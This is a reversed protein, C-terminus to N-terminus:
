EECGVEWEEKELPTFIWEYTLEATRSGLVAGAISGVLGGGVGGIFGFFPVTVLEEPTAVQPGTQGGVLAISMGIKAGASAGIKGGVLAGSWGGVQRVTEKVRNDAKYIDIASMGTGVLFCIQGGYKFVTITRGLSRIQPTSQHNLSRSYDVKAIGSGGDINIHWEAPNSSGIPIEHYDVRLAKGPNGAKYLFLSTTSGSKPIRMGEKTTMTLYYQEGNLQVATKGNLTITTGAWGAGLGEVIVSADAEGIPDFGNLLNNLCIVYLNNGGNEHIPDRTIWRALPPSYYRFGYYSLETADDYHKSSFRFPFADSQSGTQIITNGYPDYEYHAVVAGNTDVLDTINGNADCFPFANTASFSSQLLGGVGGAGQLTQSLDLGWLYSAAVPGSGGTLFLNTQPIYPHPTRPTLAPKREQLLNWGDYLYARGQVYHWTTDGLYDSWVFERRAIRRSQNDYMYQVLASGLNTTAPRAEILRNEADWIYIWDGNRTMNGDPDYALAPTDPAIATYQNLANATYLNTLGNEVTQQRNGIPDYAYSYTNTGMTADILESRVNYSFTNTTLASDTTDLRQTRRSIADYEYAFTSVVNTGFTNSVLTKNDRLPDYEYAVTPGSPSSYGALLDTGPLYAYTFVNTTADMAAIVSSFRGTPDYAYMVDYGEGLSIGAERGFPDYSRALTTGDLLHEALLSTASYENTRTGLVDTITLPRGLRDYTYAVDPTSDSYDIAVLQGLPDYAYDTAVGRAWLRRTLNGRADYSYAPGLGDAYLKNTLLGTAEDYNWRTVDPAANEDRWTQMAVMRGFADYEYGVPYTAGWTNTVRGQLDYATHVVNTLADTVTTRLGTEPDYAFTTRNGALDEQWAPRGAADYGLLIGSAHADGGTRTLTRRGLADYANTTLVGTSSLSTQLLGAVTTDTATVASRPSATTEIRTQTARDRYTRNTTAVGFADISITEAALVGLPGTTGLGTLRVRRVSNTFPTASDEYPYILTERVQWLDAGDSAFREPADTVRDASALGITGDGDADLATRFPRSLADHAHLTRLLNTGALTEVASLRGAADYFRTETRTGGGFAPASSRFPRSLFDTEDLRWAPSDAAATRTRTWRVGNTSVGYEHFVPVQATGTVAATQGDLHRTEVRTAGGPLTTTVTRGGDAYARATTLGAEDTTSLLRGAFDYASSTALSLGDASTTEAIARDAADYVTAHTVGNEVRAVVRRLADRVYVTELGDADTRSVLGCCDWVQQVTDGGSSARLTERGWEDRECVTWAAPLYNTGDFVETWAAAVRDFPDRIETERTTLWALGDPADATGHIARVRRWAGSGPVFVGPAPAPAYTGWEYTWTTLRGDPLLERWLERSSAAGAARPYYDRVTRLNGPAGYPADPAAAREEVVTRGGLANAPYAYYALSVPVGAVVEEVRRPKCTDEPLNADDPAVAAYSTRVERVDTESSLWPSIENTVRGAADYQWRTWGGDPRFEATRLGYGPADPDTQYTYTTRLAAGDPDAVKEVLAEGFAFTQWTLQEASAVAGGGPAAVTRTETRLAGNQASVRTEERLGCETLAWAGTAENRSYTWHNTQGGVAKSIDLAVGGSGDPATAFHWEAIAGGGASAPREFRVGFGGPMDPSVTAVCQPAEVRDIAGELRRVRVEGSATSLRLASASLGTATLEDAELWLEGASHGGATRGLGLALRVSGLEPTGSGPEGDCSSCGCGVAVTLLASSGNPAEARITVWGRGSDGEVQLVGDAFDVRVPEDDRASVTDELGWAIEVGEPPEPAVAYTASEGPLVSRAGDVALLSFLVENTAAGNTVTYPSVAWFRASIDPGEYPPNTVAGNSADSVRVVYTREEREAAPAITLHGNCVNVETETLRLTTQPTLGDVEVSFAERVPGGESIKGEVGLGGPVTVVFAVTGDAGISDGMAWGEFPPVVTVTLGDGLQTEAFPRGTAPDIEAGDPVGDGDSDPKAPDLGHALEFDDELGDGDSDASCADWGAAYEAEDPLGDDDTDTMDAAHWPSEPAASFTWDNRSDADGGLSRRVLQWGPGAWLDTATSNWGDTPLGQENFPEHAGYMLVDVPGNTTGSPGVLRVGATPVSAYSMPLGLSATFDANTVGEGGVLLFHGPRLVTDAPFVAKTEYAAGAVELAFGDLRVAFRGSNHLQVYQNSAAANYRVAHILVGKALSPASAADLPDTGLAVEEGDGWGDGDTDPNYPDTHYVTRELYDPLGDGDSDDTTSSIGWLWEEGDTIGDGDSDMYAAATYFRVRNFNPDAHNTDTFSGEGNTVTTVGLSVWADPIGRFREGAVQNWNVVDNTVIQNEDNTSVVGFNTWCEYHMARRFVQVDGDTEWAFDFHYDGNTAEWANTFRLGNTYPGHRGPLGGVDDMRMAALRSEIEDRAADYLPWELEDVLAGTLTVDASEPKAFDTTGRWLVMGDAGRIVTDAGDREASFPVLWTALGRVAPAADWATSFEEWAAPIKGVDQVLPGEGPTMRRYQNRWIEAQEVLDEEGLVVLPAPADPLPEDDGGTAFAGVVGAIVALVLLFAIMWKKM